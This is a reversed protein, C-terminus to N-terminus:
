NPFLMKYKYLTNVNFYAEFDTVKILGTSFEFKIKQPVIMLHFAVETFPRIADNICPKQNHITNAPVTIYFMVNDESAM